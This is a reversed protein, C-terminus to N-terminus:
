GHQGREHNLPRQDVAKQENDKARVFALMWRTFM